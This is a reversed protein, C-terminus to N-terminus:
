VIKVDSVARLDDETFKVKNKLCIFDGGLSQPVGKLTTLKNRSCNFYDTVDGFKVPIETLNMNPVGVGGEVNVLGTDLQSVM